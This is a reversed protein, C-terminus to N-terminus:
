LSQLFDIVDTMFGNGAPRLIKDAVAKAKQSANSPCLAYDAKELMNVDNDYDGLAVITKNKQEKRLFSIVDGKGSNLEFCETIFPASKEVECIGGLAATLRAYLVDMKKRDHEIFIVKLINEHRLIFDKVSGDGKFHYHLNLNTDTLHLESFDLNCADIKEAFFRTSLSLPLSRVIQGDSHRKIAAGNIGAFLDDIPLFDYLFDMTAPNRGSVIIFRGGKDTFRRVAAQTELSIEGLPMVIKDGNGAGTLTGDFDCCIIVDNLNM